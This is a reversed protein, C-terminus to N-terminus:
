KDVVNITYKIKQQRQKERSEEEWIVNLMEAKQKDKLIQILYPADGATPDGVTNYNEEWELPIGTVSPDFSM